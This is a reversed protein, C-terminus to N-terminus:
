CCSRATRRPRRIATSSNRKYSKLRAMHYGNKTDARDYPPPSNEYVILGQLAEVLEAFEGSICSRALERYSQSLATAGERVSELLEEDLEERQKAASDALSESMERFLERAAEVMKVAIKAVKQVAAILCDVQEETVDYLQMCQQKLEKVREEDM